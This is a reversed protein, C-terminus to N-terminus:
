SEHDRGVTRKKNTKATALNGPELSVRGHSFLLRIRARRRGLSGCDVNDLLALDEARRVGGCTTLVVHAAAVGQRVGSMLAGLLLGVVVSRRLVLTYKLLETHVKRARTVDGEPYHYLTRIRGEALYYSRKAVDREAAVRGHRREFKETMKYVVQVDYLALSLPQTFLGLHSVGTDAHLRCQRAALCIRGTHGPTRAPM